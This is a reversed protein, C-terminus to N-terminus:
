SRPLAVEAPDAAQAALVEVVAGQDREVVLGAVDEGVGAAGAVVAVRMVLRFNEGFNSAAPSPARWGPEANLGIRYALANSEFRSVGPLRSSSTVVSNLARSSQAGRSASWSSRPGTSTRLASWYESLMGAM